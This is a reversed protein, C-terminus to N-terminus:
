RCLMMFDSIIRTQFDSELVLSQFALSRSKDCFIGLNHSYTLLERSELIEPYLVSGKYSSSPPLLSPRSINYLSSFGSIRQDAFRSSRNQESCTFCFYSQFNFRRTCACTTCFSLPLIVTNSTPSPFHSRTQTIPLSSFILTLSFIRCEM